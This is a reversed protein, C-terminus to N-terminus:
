FPCRVNSRQKKKKTSSNSSLIIHFFIAHHAVVYEINYGINQCSRVVNSLSYSWPYTSTQIESHAPNSAPCSRFSNYIQYLWRPLASMSFGKQHKKNHYLHLPVSSFVNWMRRLQKPSLLHPLCVIFKRFQSKTFAGLRQTILLFLRTLLSTNMYGEVACPAHLVCM